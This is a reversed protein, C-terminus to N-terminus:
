RIGSGAGKSTLFKWQQNFCRCDFLSAWNPKFAALFSIGSGVDDLEPM